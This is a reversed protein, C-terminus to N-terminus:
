KRRKAKNASVRKDHAAENLRKKTRPKMVSFGFRGIPNRVIRYYHGHVYTILGGKVLDFRGDEDIISDDVHVKLIEALFMHHSGLEKVDVVRCEINVPSEKIMPCSVIEAPEQTLGTEKWKNYDAGSRVGCWDAARALSETTLNIVFEGSGKILSYSHREPRVSIYTMPPRSNVIGTWAITIINAEDGTGSTVMVAPLPSLMESPKYSQKM